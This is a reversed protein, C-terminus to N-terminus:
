LIYYRTFHSTLFSHTVIEHIQTCIYLAFVPHIPVLVNITATDIPVIIGTKKEKLYKNHNRLKEIYM